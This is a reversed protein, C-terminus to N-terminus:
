RSGTAAMRRRASIVKSWWSAWGSKTLSTRISFMWWASCMLRDAAMTLTFEGAISSM